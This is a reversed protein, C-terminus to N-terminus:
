ELMGQVEAKLKQRIRFTAQRVAVDTMGLRQATEQNSLREFEMLQFAEWNKPQVDNRIVDLARSLVQAPQCWDVSSPDDQAPLNELIARCDSGGTARPKNNNKHCFTSIENRVITMVWYRLRNGIGDRQFGPLGVYVKVLANQTIDDADDSSFGRRICYGLILPTWIEVMRQWASEDHNRMGELLSLPTADSDEPDSVQNM